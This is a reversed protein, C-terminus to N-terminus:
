NTRETLSREVRASDWVGASMNEIKSIEKKLCREDRANAEAVSWVAGLGTLPPMLDGYSEASDRTEGRYIGACAATM